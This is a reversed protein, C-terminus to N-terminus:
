KMRYFLSKNLLVGEFSDDVNSTTEGVGLLLYGDKKLNRKIKRLINKKVDLNFYILVHRLFILDMPPVGYWDDLLNIECTSVMKKIQRNIIWENACMVFYKNIIERTLGRNIEIENFAGESVRALMERSIDSAIINIKWNLIEPFKEHILIAISYPEQGSSCAACWINLAREKRREKILEPLVINALCEFPHIDRFFSTEHTTISEIVMQHLINQRDNKLRNVLEKLSSINFVNIVEAMRSDVLYRKDEDITIGTKELIFKQMFYFEETNLPEM